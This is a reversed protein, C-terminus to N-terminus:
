SLGRLPTMWIILRFEDSMDLVPLGACGHRAILGCDPRAIRRAQRPLGSDGGHAQVLREIWFFRTQQTTAAVRMM